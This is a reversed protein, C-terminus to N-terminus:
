TFIFLALRFGSLFDELIPPYQVNLYLTVGVIQVFDLLQVFHSIRNMMNIVIAVVLLGILLM